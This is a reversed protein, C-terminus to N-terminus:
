RPTYIQVNIRLNAQAPHLSCLQVDCKFSECGRSYRRINALEETPSLMQGGGVDSAEDGSGERGRLQSLMEKYRALVIKDLNDSTVEKPACRTAVLQRDFADLEPKL